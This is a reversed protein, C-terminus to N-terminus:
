SGGKDSVPKSKKQRWYIVNGLIMLLLLYAHGLSQADMSMTAPGPNGIKQEYFAAGKVGSVLGVLQGNKYYVIAEPASLAIVGGISPVKHKGWVHRSLWLHHDGATYTSVVAVDEINKVKEWLPLQTLKNGYEDETYNGRIDDAMAALASEGGARYPLVIIDEGYKAGYQEELTDKLLQSYMVGDPSFAVTIIKHGLALHHQGIALAMPWLEGAPAPSIETDMIAISGPPLNDIFVYGAETEPSSGLPLGLPFVMPALVCLVLIVWIIRTQTTQTM